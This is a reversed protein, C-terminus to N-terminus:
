LKLFRLSYSPPVEGTKYYALFLEVAEGASFVESSMVASHNDNWVVIEHAAIGQDIESAQRGVVFQQPLGDAVKRVEVIMRDASGAAQIYKQPWNNLDVKDFPIESPFTWLSLSYRETGDLLRVRRRIEEEPLGNRKLEDSIRGNTTLAHSLTMM